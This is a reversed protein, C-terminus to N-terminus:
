ENYRIKKEEDDEHLFEGNKIFSEVQRMVVPNNTMFTHTASVIIHDKMGELKTGAVSVKGDDEGTIIYSSIPDISLNGAIIGLDYDVKGYLKALKSQDTILEQGAPGFFEKYFYNDKLFDAVESGHNPTGMMVVRGLNKPKHKLIYARIVLGGLSYGVFHIKKFPDLRKGQLIKDIDEVLGEISKERSQYDINIVEYGRGSLYVELLTMTVKTRGIGHLLVVYDGTEAWSQAPSFFLTVLLAPICLWSRLFKM